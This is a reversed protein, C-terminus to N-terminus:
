LSKILCLLSRTDALPRFSFSEAMDGNQPFKQGKGVDTAVHFEVCVTILRPAVVRAAFPAPISTTRSAAPTTAAAQEAAAASGTAVALGVQPPDDGLSVTWPVPSAVPV